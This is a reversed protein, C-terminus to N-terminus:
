AAQNLKDDLSSSHSDSAFMRGITLGQVIISFVVVCYTITVLITKYEFEPLSLALAVSIGGRLGGWTLLKITKNPSDGRRNLLRLPLGVGVLRSLLVVAIAVIGAMFHNFPFVVVVMQLGILIFLIGNLVEDVLDWFKLVYDGAVNALSKKRGENGIFLGMVVMALPGSVHLKQATVTGVLVMTLTALIELQVQDNDVAKLFHFGAYGLIIGLGIGGIVEQAFLGMASSIQFNEMGASSIEYITLFVVVGIGDNFLSEGSFKVELNKSIQYEKVMALVAIPDTPSILAGFLLCYIFDLQIGLFPLLYYMLGATVGTSILVGVTALTLISWKEEALKQLNIHLASAFLLFSLMINLLVDSFNVERIVNGALQTINPNFMGWVEIALSMGLAMIMMGITYPMKLVKINLYTFVSALFILLTIVELFQM